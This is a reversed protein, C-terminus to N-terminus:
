LVWVINKGILYNVVAKNLLEKTNAKFDYHDVLILVEIKDMTGEKLRVNEM